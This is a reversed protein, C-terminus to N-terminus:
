HKMFSPWEGEFVHKGPDTEEVWGQCLTRAYKAKLKAYTNQVKAQPLISDHYSKVVYGSALGEGHKHLTALLHQAIRELKESRPETDFFLFHISVSGEKSAPDYKHLFAIGAVAPYYFPAELPSSLHPLYVVLSITGDLYSDKEYILCSEDMSKDVLVNRPISTRVMITKLTFGSFQTIKPQITSTDLIDSEYPMDLLIDARFLHNSNLNPNRILNLMVQHFIEPPFSCNHSWLPTWKKGTPEEILSSNDESSITCPKFVM